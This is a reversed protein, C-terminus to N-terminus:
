QLLESIARVYGKAIGLNGLQSRVNGLVSKNPISFVETPWNIDILRNFDTVFTHYQNFAECYHGASNILKKTIMAENKLNVLCPIFALAIKIRHLLELETYDVEIRFRESINNCFNKLNEQLSLVSINELNEHMETPMSFKAFYKGCEILLDRCRKHNREVRSSALDLKTTLKQIYEPYEGNKETVSQVMSCQDLLSEKRERYDLIKLVAQALDKRLSRAFKDRNEYKFYYGGARSYCAKFKNVNSIQEPHIKSPSIEVDSVYLMVFKSKKIESYSSMLSYVLEEATGSLFYRTPTGLQTWLIGIVIDFDYETTGESTTIQRNIVDQVYNGINPIAHEEYFFDKIAIGRPSLMDREIEKIIERCIDRERVVESSSSVLINIRNDMM